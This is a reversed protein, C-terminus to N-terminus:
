ICFALSRLFGTFTFGSGLALTPAFGFDPEAPTTRTTRGGDTRYNEV